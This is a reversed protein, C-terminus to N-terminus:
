QGGGLSKFADIAGQLGAIQTENIQLESEVQSFEYPNPRRGSRKLEASMVNRQRTLERREECAAELRSVLSLIDQASM